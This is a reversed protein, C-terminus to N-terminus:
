LIIDNKGGNIATSRYFECFKLEIEFNIADKTNENVINRQDIIERLTPTGKHYIRYSYARNCFLTAKSKKLRLLLIGIIKNKM